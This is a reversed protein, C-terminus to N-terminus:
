ENTKLVQSRSNVLFITLSILIGLMGAVQATRWGGILLGEARYNELIIRGLSYLGLYLSFNFGYFRKFPLRELGIIIGIVIIDWNGEMLEAPILQTTGYVAFAPSGVAYSVGLFSATPVGFDDGAMFCGLRGIAQGLLLGPVVLDAFQWFHINEKKTWLYGAIVGGLVGGQISLGGQWIAFIELPNSKYLDWTFVVEWLRSGLLGALVAWFCFDLVKEGFLKGARRYALYSGLLVGLAM